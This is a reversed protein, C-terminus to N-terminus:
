EPVRDARAILTPPNKIGFANATKLGIVLEFKAPRVVPLDQIFPFLTDHTGLTHLLVHM